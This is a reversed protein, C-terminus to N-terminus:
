GQQLGQAFGALTEGPSVRLRPLQWLGRTTEVLGDVQADVAGGVYGLRGLERFLQTQQPGATQAQPYPWPGSYAIFQIPAASHREIRAASAGALQGVQGASLGWLPLNDYVTHDEVWFGQRTLGALDSATLYHQPGNIAGVFGSPMFFTATFGDRRLLPVAYRDPSLRGDDFTLAVPGSPLPLGYLLADALRALSIAHAHHARLYAMEAAFQAPPVTLGVELQYGYASSWEARTPYPGVRHYMLIPVRATRAPARAPVVVPADLSAPGEGVVEFARGAPGPVVVLELHRYLLGVGAPRLTGAGAFRVSVPVGWGVATSAPDERSTWGVNPVPAGLQTAVVRAAPLAFKTALMASRAAASPWSRRAPPALEAWQQAFRRQAFEAVFARAADLARASPSAQAATARAPPSPGAGRPTGPAPAPGCAAALAAAAAAAAWVRPRGGDAPSPVWRM